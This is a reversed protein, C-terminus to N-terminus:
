GRRPLLHFIQAGTLPMNARLYQQSKLADFIATGFVVDFRSLGDAAPFTPVADHVLLSCFSTLKPRGKAMM